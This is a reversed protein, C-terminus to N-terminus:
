PRVLLSWKEGDTLVLRSNLAIRWSLVRRARPLYENTVVPFVPSGGLPDVKPVLASVILFPNEPAEFM